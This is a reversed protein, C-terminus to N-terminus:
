LAIGVRQLDEELQSQEIVNRLEEHSPFSESPPTCDFYPLGGDTPSVIRLIKQPAVACVAGTKTPKSKPRQTTVRVKM